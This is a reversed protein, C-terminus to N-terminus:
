KCNFARAFYESNQMPINVRVLNPSHSDVRLYYHITQNDFNNAASIFFLQETTFNSMAFPLKFNKEPHKTRAYDIYA